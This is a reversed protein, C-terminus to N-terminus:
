SDRWHSGSVPRDETKAGPHMSIPPPSSHTLVRKVTTFHLGTERQIQRISEGERLVRYRIEKWKEMDRFV